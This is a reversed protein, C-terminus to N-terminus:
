VCKLLTEAVLMDEPTTVKINRYSGETLKVKRNTMSEVVMADDTIGKQYEVRSMMREYADRILPFTFGQPTQITWVTARDPTLRAFGADDALKVTDKSPMGAVCAGYRSADEMVRVIVAKDAFPRAGDHIMVFDGEGYGEQGGLYRLGEYVSHYRERGGSIVATVKEFGYHEVIEKRCYESESDGTVLIIDSVAEEEFAKLAYYILPKGDLLMYQKQIDSNMRSGKGAALLIVAFRGKEHAERSTDNGRNGRIIDKDM